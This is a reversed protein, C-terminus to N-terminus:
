GAHREVDGATSIDLDRAQVYEGVDAIDAQFVERRSVHTPHHRRELSLAPRRVRDTLRSRDQPAPQTNRLLFAM